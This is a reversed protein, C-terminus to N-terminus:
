SSVPKWSALILTNFGLWLSFGVGVFGYRRITDSGQGLVYLCDCPPFAWLAEPGCLSNYIVLCFWSHSYCDKCLCSGLQNGLVMHDTGFIMWAHLVICVLCVRTHTHTHTHTHTLLPYFYPWSNSLSCPSILSLTKYLFFNSLLFTTIIISDWFFTFIFILYHEKCFLLSMWGGLFICIAACIVFPWLLM